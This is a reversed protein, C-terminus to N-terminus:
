DARIITYRVHRTTGDTFTINIEGETPKDGWVARMVNMGTDIVSEINPNTLAVWATYLNKRMTRLTNFM